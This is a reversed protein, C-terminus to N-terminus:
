HMKRRHTAVSLGALLLVASAPEPTIPDYALLLGDSAYYAIIPIDDADFALAADTDYQPDIYLGSTPDQGTPLLFDAWGGGDNISYFVTDTGAEDAVYAVAPHGQSNFTLNVRESIVDTAINTVDWMGSQMNFLAYDLDGDPRLVALGPEDNPGYALSLHQISGLNGISSGSWTGSFVDRFAFCVESNVGYYALGIGDQSDVAMSVSQGQYPVPGPAWSVTNTNWVLGDYASVYLDQSESYAVVPRNASLYDVDPANYADPNISSAVTSSQWGLVSSQTFRIDQDSFYAAGIRGDQGPEARVYSDPSGFRGLGSPRWGVPTLSAAVVQQNLGPGSNSGDYFVTPWTAGTRMALAVDGSAGAPNADIQQYTWSLGTATVSTAFAPLIVLTACVLHLASNKM